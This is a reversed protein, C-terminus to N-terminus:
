QGSLLKNYEDISYRKNTLPDRYFYNVGGFLGRTSERQFMDLPARVPVSPDRAVVEGPRIEVPKQAAGKKDNLAKLNSDTSSSSPGRGYEKDAMMRADELPYGAETYLKVTEAYAKPTYEPKATRPKLGAPLPISGDKDRPLKSIDVLVPEGKANQFERLNAAQPRNLQDRQLGVRATDNQTRTTDNNMQAVRQIAENNKGGVNLQLSMEEKVANALEKNVGSILELGSVDGRELRRYGVAIKGLDAPNIKVEDYTDGKAIAFTTIGTKPDVRTTLKRSQDNIFARAGKAQAGFPDAIVAKAFDADEIGQLRTREANQIDAFERDNGTALALRGRLGALQAQYQRSTPDVAGRVTLAENNAMNSGGRMAPLALGQLAAKDAAEFDDDIAKNTAARDIGQTFDNLERRIGYAEAERQQTRRLNDTELGFREMRAASERGEREERQKLLKNRESMDYADAGISFGRAFASM